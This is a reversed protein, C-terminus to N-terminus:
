STLNAARAQNSALLTSVSSHRIAEYNRNALVVLAALLTAETGARGQHLAAQCDTIAALVTDRSTAVVTAAERGVRAVEHGIRAEM